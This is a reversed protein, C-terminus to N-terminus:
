KELDEAAILKMSSDRLSFKNKLGETIFVRQASKDVLVAEIERHEKLFALARRLGMVFLATCYADADASNKAVISVSSLDSDAPYGTKTDFIHHYRVGDKDFYREYPGSTVVSEDETEIIAFYEGRPKLPHQLGLRWLSGSPTRGVVALNGGLDILASKVGEKKILACIRDAIYGKAIAGLDVRQRSAAYVTGKAGDLKLMAYNVTALAKKIETPRPLRPHDTGIGWLKVVAGVTPDFAGETASAIALAQRLLATTEDGAAVAKLGAGENISSVESSPINVSLLGELRSIEAMARELIADNKNKDSGYLTLRVITGLKYGERESKIPASSHYRLLVALAIIIFIVAATKKRGSSLISGGM